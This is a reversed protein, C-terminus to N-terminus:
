RMAVVMKCLKVLSADFGGSSLVDKCRLKAKAKDAASMESLAMSTSRPISGAGVGSTVAAGESLTGLTSQVPADESVGVRATATALRSGGISADVDANVGNSGGISATTSVDLAPRRRSVSTSSNIGKSGGVSADVGLGSRSSRGVSANVGNAGGVSANLGSRSGNVSIGNKGGIDLANAHLPAILATCGIALVALTSKNDSM